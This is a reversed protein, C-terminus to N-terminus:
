NVLCGVRKRMAEHERGDIFIEFGQHASPWKPQLRLRIATYFGENKLGDRLAGRERKWPTMLFRTGLALSKALNAIYNAIQLTQQSAGGRRGGGRGM